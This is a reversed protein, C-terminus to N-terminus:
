LVMVKVRFILATLADFSVKGSEVEGIVGVKPTTGGDSGNLSHSEFLISLLCHLNPPFHIRDADPGL